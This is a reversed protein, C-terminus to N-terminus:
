LVGGRCLNPPGDVDQFRGLSRDDEGAVTGGSIPGGVREYAENFQDLYRNRRGKVTFTDNRVVM